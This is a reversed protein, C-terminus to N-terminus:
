RSARLFYRDLTAILQRPLLTEATKTFGVCDTFLVTVSDFHRPEIQGTDALEDAIRRPFVKSLLERTRREGPRDSAPDRALLHDIRELIHPPEHPKTVYADAGERLGALIDSTAAPRHERVLALALSM